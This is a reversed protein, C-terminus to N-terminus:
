WYVMEIVDERAMWGGCVEPLMAMRLAGGLALTTITTGRPFYPTRSLATFSRTILSPTSDVATCSHSIDSSVARVRYGEEMLM